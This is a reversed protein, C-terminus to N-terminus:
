LNKEGGREPTHAHSVLPHESLRIAPVRHKLLFVGESITRADGSTCGPWSRFNNHKSCLPIIYNSTSCSDLLYVHGGVTAPNQCDVVSCVSADCHQPMFRKLIGIWGRPAKDVSTSRVNVVRNGGLTVSVSEESPRKRISKQPPLAKPPTKGGASKRKGCGNIKSLRRSAANECKPFPWVPGRVTCKVALSWMGKSVVVPSASVSLAGGMKYRLIPELM